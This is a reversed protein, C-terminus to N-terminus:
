PKVPGKSDLIQIQTSLTCPRGGMTVGVEGFVAAYGDTPLPVKATFGTGTASMPTSRWESKRFDLTKSKAVWLKAGASTPDVTIDLREADKASTYKWTVNPLPSESLAAYVFAGATTVLRGLDELGHGVNPIYLVSKPGKLGDWYLNLADQTWYPDNTGNIILKPMTIRNRYSWPDVIAALRKGQETSLLQQLGRRTYDGIKDSYKGWCRIQHPMQATLNLNDYVMPIIAKVRTPDAAATLWTTWGRKSAGSVIFGTIEGELESKSFAQVADMARVAAKTMPLLLPWTLDGTEVTKAFTHAILDDELKGDFLPQNPIGYLIAAPCGVSSALMKLIQSQADGPKGFTIFLLATQPHDCKKPKFIEIEHTWPIGHWTQSTMKLVCTPGLLTDTQYAKHWEFSPDPKQVYTLIDEAQCGVGLAVLVLLLVARAKKM